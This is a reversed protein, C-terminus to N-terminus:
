NQPPSGDANHQDARHGKQGCCFCKGGKMYKERESDTLRAAGLKMVEDDHNPWNGSANELSPGGRGHSFRKAQFIITDARDAIESATQLDIPRHLEVQLKV